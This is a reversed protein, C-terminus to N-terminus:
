NASDWTAVPANVSVQGDYAAPSQCGFGLLYAGDKLGTITFVRDGTVPTQFESDTGAYETITIKLTGDTNYEAVLKVARGPRNNYDDKEHEMSGTAVCTEGAHANGWISQTIDGQFAGDSYRLIYYWGKANDLEQITFLSQAWEDATYATYKFTLTTTFGKVILVDKTDSPKGWDFAGGTITSDASAFNAGCITCKNDSIENHTCVEGHETCVGDVWNHTVEAQVTVEIHTKYGNYTVEVNKYVAAVQANYGSEGASVSYGSEIVDKVARSGYVGYVNTEIIGVETGYAVSVDDAEIGTMAIKEEAANVASYSYTTDEGALYVTMVNGLTDPEEVTVTIDKAGGSIVITLKYVGKETDYTRTVVFNLESVAQLTAQMGDTATTGTATNFPNDGRGFNGLMYNDERLVADKGNSVFTLLWSNWMNPSGETQDNQTNRQIGSLTYHIEFEGTFTGIAQAKDSYTNVNVSGSPLKQTLLTVGTVTATVGEKLEVTITANKFASTAIEATLESAPIAIATTVGSYEDTEWSGRANVTFGEPLTVATGVATDTVVFSSPAGDDLSIGTVEYLKEEDCLACTIVVKGTAADYHPNNTFRHTHETTWQATLTISAEATAPVTVPASNGYTNEGDRWGDFFNSAPATFPCSAPTTFSFTMAEKDFSVTMSSMDPASGSGGGNEFKITLTYNKGCNNNCNVVFKNEQRTATEPYDHGTAPTTVTFSVTNETSDSTSVKANTLDSSTFMYQYDVIGDQECTLEQKTEKFYYGEALETEETVVNSETFKPLTVSVTNGCTTCVSQATGTSEETPAVTVNWNTCFHGQASIPFTYVAVSEEVYLSTEPVQYYVTYYLTGTGDTLCSPAKEEAHFAGTEPTTAMSGEEEANELFTQMAASLVDKAITVTIDGGGPTYTGVLNKLVEGRDDILGDTDWEPSIKTLSKWQATITVTGTVTYDSGAARLETEGTVLWGTFEWGADAAPAPPLKITTGPAGFWRNPVFSPDSDSDSDSDAAGVGLKYNVYVTTGPTGPDIPDGASWRANLTLDSTVTDEEFNWMGNDTGWGVFTYGERTPVDTPEELLSGDGVEVTVVDVEGDGNGDVGYNFTVTHKGGCAVLAFTLCCMLVTLLLAKLISKRKM